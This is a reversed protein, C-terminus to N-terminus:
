NADDARKGEREERNRKVRAIIDERTETVEGSEDPTQVEAKTDETEETDSDNEKAKDFLRKAEDLMDRLFAEKDDSQSAKIMAEIKLKLMVDKDMMEMVESKYTPDTKMIERDALVAKMLLAIGLMPQETIEERIKEMFMIAYAKEQFNFKTEKELAEIILGADGKMALLLSVHELIEGAREPTIGLSEIVVRRGPNYEGIKVPGYKKDDEQSVKSSERVRESIRDDDTDSIMSKRVSGSMKGSRIDKEVQEMARDLERGAGLRKTLEKRINKIVSEIGDSADLPIMEGDPGMMYAGAIHGSDKFNRALEELSGSGSINKKNKESNESDNESNEESKKRTNITYNM